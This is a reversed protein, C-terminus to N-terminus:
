HFVRPAHDMESRLRSAQKIAAIAEDVCSAQGLDEILNQFFYDDTAAIAAELEAGDEIKSLAVYSGNAYTRLMAKQFENM